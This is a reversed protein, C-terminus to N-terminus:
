RRRGTALFRGATELQADTLGVGANRGVADLLVDLVLMTLLAHQAEGGLRGLEQEVARKLRRHALVEPPDPLRPPAKAASPGRFKRPPDAPPAAAPMAPPRRTPRSM